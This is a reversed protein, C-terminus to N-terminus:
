DQPILLKLPRTVYDDPRKTGSPGVWQDNDYSRIFIDGDADQYAKGPILEPELLEVSAGAYNKEGLTVTSPLFVWHGNGSDTIIKTTSGYSDTDTVRGELTVKLRDGVKISHQTM